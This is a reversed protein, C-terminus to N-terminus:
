APGFFISSATLSSMSVGVLIVQDGAGMDVITDAGSQRLIYASGADLQIRDGEAASFDLVRDIAAGSFSHFIDAGSGGTLTDNNRDGSLYDNGAGGTLVDDQQGGRIIDAGAGGDCTDNGLNGLVIDAGEGGSLRDQDKGGVVWDDGDGGSVTDDGMNGSADDFGAGGVISDNGEEGRLFNAGAGGSLTDNGLRGFIRNAGADGTIADGLGTGVVNEVGVMTETGGVVQRTSNILLTLAETEGTFDATDIGDGGDMDDGGAGALLTDD